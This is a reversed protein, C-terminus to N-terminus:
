KFYLPYLLNYIKNNKVRNIKIKNELEINLIYIWIIELILIICYNFFNIISLFSQILEVEFKMKKKLTNDLFYFIFFLILSYFLSIFNYYKYIDIKKKLDTYVAIKKNIIKELRQAYEEMKFDLENGIGKINTILDGEETLM